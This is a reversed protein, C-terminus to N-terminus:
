AAPAETRPHVHWVYACLLAVPVGILATGVFFWAFGVDAIIFGSAGALLSGPLACLSTLLAYQSAAHESAALSSMYTILVISAFAYAFSDVSVAIAFTWFAAGGDGGHIALYALALHSASGFVTGAVLSALIGIRPVVFSALFTGALAVGFGFLKTVTAIDTNSYHLSKFLPMAMASSVYGPMRFGAVMVLIPVAMPGLRTVLERIPAVVTEVFGAREHTAPRAPEPEPAILAAIMGPAMLVAMCLYAARWGYADALYLAGAGAALNGVRWGVEAFSSMLAQREPAVATIRWGDIVVDQTAGAFGLALSFVVTWALFDAPDGFAIGALTLAVGLQTAVIWGRRRGLWRGLIPADYRDLFPAWLFKFKYALTLESLLGLIGIPVKAESLWASQTVYVLLFPLGSSFGLGLMAVIRRDALHTLVLPKASAPADAGSVADPM